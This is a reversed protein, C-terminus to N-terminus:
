SAGIVAVAALAQLATTVVEGQAATSSAGVELVWREHAVTLM